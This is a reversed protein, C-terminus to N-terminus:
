FGDVDISNNDNRLGDLHFVNRFYDRTGNIFDGIFDFFSYNSEYGIEGVGIDIITNPDNDIFGNSSTPYDFFGRQGGFFDFGDGKFGLNGRFFYTEGGVMLGSHEAKFAGAGITTQFNAGDTGATFMFHAADVGADAKTGDFAGLRGRAGIGVGFTFNTHPTRRPRISRVLGGLSPGWFVPPDGGGTMGGTPDTLNVPDNGMGVYSSPFERMPDVVLFRGIVPDYMRLEFSNWGTEADEESYEGQFGYRYYRVCKKVESGKKSHVEWLASPTKQLVGEDPYYSLKLCGM